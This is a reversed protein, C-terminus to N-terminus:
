RASRPQPSPHPPHLHHPQTPNHLALSYTIPSPTSHLPCPPLLSLPPTPVKYEPEIDLEIEKGTLTRVRSNRKNPYPFHSYPPEYKINMTETSPHHYPPHAFPLKQSPNPNHPTQLHRPQSDSNTESHTHRPTNNTTSIINFHARKPEATLVSKPYVGQLASSTFGSM